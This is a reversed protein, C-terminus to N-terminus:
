QKDAQLVQGSEPEIQANRAEASKIILPQKAALNSPLAETSVFKLLGLGKDSVIVIQSFADAPFNLEIGPGKAVDALARQGLLLVGAASVLDINQFEDFRNLIRAKIANTTFSPDKSDPAKLATVARQIDIDSPFQTPFQGGESLKLNKAIAKGLKSHDSRFQEVLRGSGLELPTFGAGLSLTVISVGGNDKCRAALFITGFLIADDKKPTVYFGSQSFIFDLGGKWSFENPWIRPNISTLGRALGTMLGPVTNKCTAHYVTPPIARAFINHPKAATPSQGTPAHLTYNSPIAISGQACLSVLLVFAASIHM